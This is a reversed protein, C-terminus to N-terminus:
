DNNVLENERISPQYPVRIPTTPETRRGEAAAARRAELANVLRTTRKAMVAQQPGPQAGLQALESELWQQYSRQCVYLPQGRSPGLGSILSALAEGFPAADLHVFPQLWAGRPGRTVDVYAMLEGQRYYVWGNLSGWPAPEIQQVLSPVLSTCLLNVAMEDKGTAPRWGERRSVGRPSRTIQWIQQRAYISFGAKRLAQFARSSEDVEAILSYAGRQGVRKILHELLEPLHPSEMAADPALFTFHAFSSGSSHVVQGLLPVRGNGAECLSTFVGTLASLPSLLAGAPVLARGWTLSPRSDLFLAHRRYRHLLGLDGLGFPRIM